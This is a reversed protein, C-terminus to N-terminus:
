PTESLIEKTGFFDCRNQSCSIRNGCARQFNQPGIRLALPGCGYWGPTYRTFRAFGWTGGIPSAAMPTPVDAPFVAYVVDMGAKAPVM